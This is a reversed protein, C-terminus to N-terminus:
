LIDTSRVIVVVEPKKSNPRRELVSQLRDQIGGIVAKGAFLFLNSRVSLSGEHIPAGLTSRFAGTSRFGCLFIRGSGSDGASFDDVPAEWVSTRAILVNEIREQDNFPLLEHLGEGGPLARLLNTSASNVNIKGPRRHPWVTLDRKIRNYLRPSISPILRLESISGMPGNPPRYDLGAAAYADDEMGGLGTPESDKDIWDYVAQTILIASEPTIELGYTQLLRIFRAQYPNFPFQGGERYTQQASVLSNINFRASLDTIRFSLSGGTVPFPARSRSWNDCASDNRRESHKQSEWYDELLERRALTEAGLLYLFGQESHIYNTQYRVNLLYNGAIGTGLGAVLGVVLLAVVLAAGRQPQRHGTHIRRM